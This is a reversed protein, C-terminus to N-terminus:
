FIWRGARRRSTDRLHHYSARGLTKFVYDLVNARTEQKLPGLVELLTTIAKVGDDQQEAM